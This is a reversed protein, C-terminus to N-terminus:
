APADAPTASASMEHSQQPAVFDKSRIFLVASAAGALALVASVILL